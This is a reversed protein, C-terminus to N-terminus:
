KVAEKLTKGPRFKAVRVSPIQMPENPNRPNVGRRGKRERVEFIGFGSLNIKEDQSLKDIMTELFAAVVMEVHKRPLRTADSVKDILTQKNVM